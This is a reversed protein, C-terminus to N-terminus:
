AATRSDVAYRSAGRRRGAPVERREQLNQLAAALEALGDGNVASTPLVAEPLALIHEKAEKQEWVSWVKNYQEDM